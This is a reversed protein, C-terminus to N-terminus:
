VLIEVVLQIGFVSAVFPRSTESHLACVLDSYVNTYDFVFAMFQRSCQIVKSVVLGLLGPNLPWGISNM